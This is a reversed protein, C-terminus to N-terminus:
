RGAADARLPTQQSEAGAGLEARIAEPIMPSCPDVEEWVRIAERVAGTYTRFDPSGVGFAWLREGCAALQTSRIRCVARRPEALDAHTVAAQYAEFFSRNDSPSIVDQEGDAMAAEPPIVQM